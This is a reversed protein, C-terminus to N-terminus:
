RYHKMKSMASVREKQSKQRWSKTGLEELLGEIKQEHRRQQFAIPLNLDDDECHMKFVGESRVRM